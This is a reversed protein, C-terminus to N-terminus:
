KPGSFHQGSQDIAGHSPEIERSTYCDKCYMQGTRVHFRVVVGADVPAHCGDCLTGLETTIEEWGELRLAVGNIKLPVPAAKVIQKRFVEELGLWRDILHEPLGAERLCAEMLAERHDFLEDSIVMWHHARRPRNGFFSKDGTITAQLFNYQKQAVWDPTLGEFFPGLLPDAFARAYFADLITRLREGAELAAWLEPDPALDGMPRRRFSM